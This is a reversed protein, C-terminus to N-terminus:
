TTVHTRGTQDFSGRERWHLPPVATADAQELLAARAALNRQRNESEVARWSVGPPTRHRLDEWAERVGRREGEGPDRPTADPRPTGCSALLLSLGALLRRPARSRFIM